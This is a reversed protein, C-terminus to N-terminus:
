RGSSSAAPAPLLWARAAALAPRVRRGAALLTAGLPGGRLGVGRLRGAREVGVVRGLLQAAGVRGDNEGSADGRLTFTRASAGEAGAAVVRHAVLGRWTACLVVDGRAIMRASAPAVVLCEGDRIAPLM